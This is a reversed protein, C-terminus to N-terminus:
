FAALGVCSAAIVVAWAPVRWSLLAVFAAAALAMTEPSTIGESFVPDYLAAALLGVVAAGVGALARQAHESERVREWTPLAAIILLASPLFIAVLATAAGPIDTPTGENVAGLYAAFSFLPGPVAQAAGYGALFDDRQVLGTQVTEAELLPLVVHGGGFVLAGARYFRDVLDVVGTDTAAAIVPLAVLLGLFLALAVLAARRSVRTSLTGAEDPDQAGPRLWLAGIAAGLLIALLQGDVGAALLTVVMGIAAIAARQKDPALTRAMGVVAHAVVAVAAAKLGELWGTGGIADASYAFAVLLVASPLTFAVWAAVLGAYGARQLGIAMGVQSSAPGPLVQCLAVLDAYAKDTLWERRTVFADRFYGLHAVPGGFSTLGLMLFVRFVETVSGARPV